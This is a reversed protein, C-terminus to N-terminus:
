DIDRAGIEILIGWFILIIAPVLVDYKLIFVDVRNEVFFDTFKALGFFMFGVVAGATMFGALEEEISYEHLYLGAIFIISLYVAIDWDTYVSLETIRFLMYIILGFIGLPFIIREKM